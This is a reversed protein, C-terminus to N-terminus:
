DENLWDYLAQAEESVPLLPQPNTATVAVEKKWLKLEHESYATYIIPTKVDINHRIMEAETASEEAYIISNSDIYYIEFVHGLKRREGYQAITAVNKPPHALNVVQVKQGEEFVGM